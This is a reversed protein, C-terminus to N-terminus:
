GVHSVELTFPKRQMVSEFERVAPRSVLVCKVGDMTGLKRGLAICGNLQRALNAPHIRVGFRDPVNEVLYLSMGFRPSYTLRCTYTGGPICSVDSANSLWPREVTWWGLGDVTLRGFTGQPGTEFRVLRAVKM